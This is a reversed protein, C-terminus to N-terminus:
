ANLLRPGQTEAEQKLTAGFIPRAVSPANTADFQLIPNSLIEQAKEQLGQADLKVGLREAEEVPAAFKQAAIQDYRGKLSDRTGRLARGVEDAEVEPLVSALNARQEQTQALREAVDNKGALLPLRQEAASRIAAQQAADQLMRQNFQEPGATAVRREMDLLSPVGTAQGIRLQLGPIQQELNLAGELNQAAGPYQRVDGEIKGSVYQDAMRNVS